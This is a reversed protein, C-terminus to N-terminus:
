SDKRARGDSPGICMAYLVLYPVSAGVKRIEEAAALKEELEKRAEMAQATDMAQKNAAVEKARDVMEKAKLQKEENM